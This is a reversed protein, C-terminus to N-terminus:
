RIKVKIDMDILSLEDTNLAHIAIAYVKDPDAKFDIKGHYVGEISKEIQHVSVRGDLTSQPREILEIKIDTKQQINLQIAFRCDYEDFYIFDTYAFHKLNIKSIDSFDEFDDALYEQHDLLALRSDNRLSVVPNLSQYTKYTKLVSRKIYQSLYLNKKAVHSIQKVQKKTNKGKRFVFCSSTYPVGFKSITISPFFNMMEQNFGKLPLLDPKPKNLFSREQRTDFEPEPYFDAAEFIKTLFEFDFKYNGKVQITEHLFLHETTMVYVGDEKLVRKVEQLHKVFDDFHGIHEFACSSYCFDFSDDPFNLSRMDMEEVKLNSSEFGAPAKELVFDLCSMGKEIKATAWATNYVYLDTAIFEKVTKSVDFILRERGAGFSVGVSEKNLKDYKLLNLYIVVFEWQKRHYTPAQQLLEDLIYKFGPDTYDEAACIKQWNKQNLVDLVNM